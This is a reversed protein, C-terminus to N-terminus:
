GRRDDGGSALLAKLEDSFDAHAQMVAACLECPKPGNQCTRAHPNDGGWCESKWGRHAEKLAAIRQRLAIVEAEAADKLLMAQFRQALAEDRLQRLAIVEDELMTPTLEESDLQERAAKEDM